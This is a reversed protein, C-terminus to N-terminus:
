NRITSKGLTHASAAIADPLSQRFDILNSIVQLIATRIRNSGGSGLVFQPKGEELIMTPSMMSSLRRDVPWNHFGFPNLDAEGIMNNLMIGTGPVTYAQDKATPFPPVPPM